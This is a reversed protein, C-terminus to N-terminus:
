CARALREFLRDPAVVSALADALADATPRPVYPLTALAEVGTLEAILRANHPRDPTPGATTEVLIFAAIPISRRRLEAITLASHNITGLGNRAVLVVPLAVAAVLDAGTFGPGYPALLGGATELLFFDADAALRQAARALDQVKLELGAAAAGVAPAVPLAFRHPCVDSLTLTESGSAILLQAHDTEDPFQCGTEVPKFPAARLGARHALRLLAVGLATKGVATDTGVLAAAFRPHTM